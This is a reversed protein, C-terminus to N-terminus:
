RTRQRRAFLGDAQLMDGSERHTFGPELGICEFGRERLHEFVEPLLPQGAYLEVVSLEAEVAVVRDLVGEAGRLAHLEYGQVDLKLYARSATELLSEAQDDLRAIPVEETGVTASAPAGSVHRPNIELMSSSVVNGSVNIALTGSADGLALRQCEWAPDAAAAADLAAFPGPLPELSVMRGAYGAARLEGGWQGRNAGVDLVLDVSAAEILRQRRASMTRDPHSRRVDLGARLALSRLRRELRARWRMGGDPATM